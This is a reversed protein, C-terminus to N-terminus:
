IQFKLPALVRHFVESGDNEQQIGRKDYNFGALSPPCKKYLQPSLAFTIHLLM